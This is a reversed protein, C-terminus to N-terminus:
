RDQYDRNRNNYVYITKNVRWFKNFDILIFDSVEKTLHYLAAICHM